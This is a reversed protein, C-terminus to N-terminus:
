DLIVLVQILLLQQHAIIINLAQRTLEMQAQLEVLDVQEPHDVQEEREPLGV